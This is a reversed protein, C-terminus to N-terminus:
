AAMPLACAGPWTSTALISLAMLMMYAGFIDNWDRVIYIYFGSSEHLMWAGTSFRGDYDKFGLSPLTNKFDHYKTYVVNTVSDTTMQYAPNPHNIINGQSDALFAYNGPIYGDGFIQVLKDIFFDIGFVGLFEGNKGYVVRSFTICYNGTQEDYYPSSINSGTPSAITDKYWQRDEVHWGYDPTWGTNMIVTHKKYPNAMYCASINPYNSAIDDLWEVCGEYDDLIEPDAEIVNAFMDVISRQQNVWTSLQVYYVDLDLNITMTGSVYGSITGIVINFVMTVIFLWIIITRSRRITKALNRHKDKLKRGSRDGESVMYSYSFFNDLKQSLVLGSERISEIDEKIDVSHGLRDSDSLKIISNLPDRLDESIDTIFKNRAELTDEAKLEM